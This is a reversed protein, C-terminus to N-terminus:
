SSTARCEASWIEAPLTRLVLVVGLLLVEREVATMSQNWHRTVCPMTEEVSQNFLDRCRRLCAVEQMSLSGPFSFFKVFRVNTLTYV